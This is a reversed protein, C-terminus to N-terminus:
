AGSSTRPGTITSPDTSVLSWSGGLDWSNGSSSSSGLSVATPNAVALNRTLTADADATDFGISGNRWATNRDLVLQGPNANDIFGGVANDFAISNRVVHGAPLDEDGGGLKWGNGDGTYDPLNWRNFGNGWAVSNEITIPSLF